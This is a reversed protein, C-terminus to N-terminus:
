RAVQEDIFRFIVDLVDQSWFDNEHEADDVLVLRADYGHEVLRDRMKVSQHYPVVTDATGHLLLTPPYDRGDEVRLYPSMEAARSRVEDSIGTAPTAGVVAAFPGYYYIRFPNDEHGFADIAETMDTPPFCSVVFDVRDSVDTWTGDEYRPDDATLGVLLSTNGGSSTGWIGLRDPDVHWQAANARLYRIAAKVDELYAPFTYKGNRTADRHNVTAVVYGRRALGALQPMEYDRDPTTWASGQVFVVTPWRRDDGDGYSQPAIIDMVLRDAGTKYAVDRAVSALGLRHPNHPIHITNTANTANSDTM